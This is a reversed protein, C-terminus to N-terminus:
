ICTWNFLAEKIAEESKNIFHVGLSSLSHDCGVTARGEGWKETLEAVVDISLM